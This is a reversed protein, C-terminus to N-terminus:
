LEGTVRPSLIHCYFAREPIICTHYTVHDVSHGGSFDELNGVAPDRPTDKLATTYLQM